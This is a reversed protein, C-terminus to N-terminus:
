GGERGQRGPGDDGWLEDAVADVQPAREDGRRPALRQAVLHNPGPVDAVTHLGLDPLLGRQPGERQHLHITNVEPQSLRYNRGSQAANKKLPACTSPKFGLPPRRLGHIM